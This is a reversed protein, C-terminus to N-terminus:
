LSLYLVSLELPSVQKFKDVTHIIRKWSSHTQLSAFIDQCQQAILQKGRNMTTGSGGGGGGGGGGTGQDAKASSTAADDGSDSSDDMLGESEGFLDSGHRDTDKDDDFLAAVSTPSRLLSNEESAIDNRDYISSAASTFSFGSGTRRRPRHDAAGEAFSGRGLQRRLADRETRLESIERHASDLQKELESVRLRLAAVETM